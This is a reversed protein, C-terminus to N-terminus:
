LNFKIDLLYVVISGTAIFPAYPMAKRREFNKRILQLVGYLAGLLSTAFISLITLEVGLVIGIFVYLKIDGGGIGGRSIISVILLLGSGLFAALTYDWWPLPHNLMRLFVAGAYAFIILQNPIIMAVLDTQIAIFLISVFFFGILLEYSWNFNWFLFGYIAGLIVEIINYYNRNYSILISSNRNLIRISVIRFFRGILFGIM